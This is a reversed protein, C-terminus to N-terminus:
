QKTGIKTMSYLLSDNRKNKLISYAKTSRPHKFETEDRPVETKARFIQTARTFLQKSHFQWLKAQDM